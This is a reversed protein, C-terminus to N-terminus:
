NSFPMRWSLKKADEYYKGLSTMHALEPPLMGVLKNEQLFLVAVDGNQDCISTQQNGFTIPYWNCVDPDVLWGTQNDWSDGRTSFYLTALAYRETLRYDSYSSVGPNSALWEFARNQATGATMLSQGGDFAIGALLSQLQMRSTQNTVMGTPQFTAGIVPAMTVTSTPASTTVPARSPSSTCEAQNTCCNCGVECDAELNVLPLTCLADPVTGTLANGALYLNEKM